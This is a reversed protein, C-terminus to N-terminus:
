SLPRAMRFNTLEIGEIVPHQEAEVAFGVREFFPRATISVDASLGAAGADMARSELEAMLARAVGRRAFAPSVFLMDIDGSASVDSFGAVRGDVVAVVTGRRRRAENWGDISRQAPRAWAAIQAASYDASATITVADLFVALTTAADEDRYDRIVIESM